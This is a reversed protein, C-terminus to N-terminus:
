TESEEEEETASDLGHVTKEWYHPNTFIQIFGKWGGISMLGWYLPSLLATKVMDFYKRQMAGAVNMYTFTFNGFFLSFAGMYYIPGPFLSSIFDFRFFLWATTLVWYVPNFVVTFINGGVVMQFSFFAKFGIERILKFPHRMHVLWTQIHGKVWRSRQRIWNKVNSNAEEYTTSDVIKTRYGLKYLRIGLDADETMNHPDWAGAEILAFKKFHNSTGGLPIPVNQADLGPLFLDFWMSYESSFWQTLLNQQRNFYNLKAQLCIVNSPSKNFAVVIKKLQDPDPKDEADFIVLLEGKAHILGYNCAKPKTKPLSTPVIVGKIFDPPNFKHFANITEDDDQELLVKVDLKIKPYDLNKIAKLLTPLVAAEKYVPVLITYLPLEDDRLSDIEEQTIPVELDTGVANAVLVFKYVVMLLYIVTFIANVGILFNQLNWFALGVMVLCLIILWIKQQTTLVKAASNEPARNLLASVSQATYDEQFLKELANEFDNETILVPAIELGTKDKVFDHSDTNVPDIVGLYLKNENRSLPLVGWEWQEDPSLLEAAEKSLEMESLDFLPMNVQRSLFSYLQKETVYGRHVLAQGIRSKTSEALNLADNLQERTIQGAMVLLTGLNTRGLIREIAEELEERHVIVPHIDTQLRDQLEVLALDYLPDAFAIKIGSEDRSLPLAGLRRASDYDLQRAITSNVPDTRRTQKIQNGLPDILDQEDITPKLSLAAVNRYDAFVQYVDSIEDNQYRRIVLDFLQDQNIVEDIIQTIDEQQIVDRSVLYDICERILREDKYEPTYKIYKRITSNLATKPVIVPWLQKESMQALKRFAKGQLPDTVAIWLSDQHEFLPLIQHEQMMPQPFRTVLDGDIQFNDLPLHPTEYLISKIQAADNENILGESILMTLYGEVSSDAFSGLRRLQESQVLHSSILFEEAQSVGVEFNVQIKNQLEIKELHNRLVATNMLRPEVPYGTLDQIIDLVGPHIISLGLILVGDVFNLPLISLMKCIEFPIIDFLALLLQDFKPPLDEEHIAITGMFDASIELWTNKLEPREEMLAMFLSIGAIRSLTLTGQLEAETIWGDQQLKEAIREELIPKAFLKKDTHSRKVETLVRLPIIIFSTKCPWGATIKSIQDADSLDSIGIYLTKNSWWLPVYTQVERRLAPDIDLFEHITNIPSPQIAARNPLYYRLSILQSWQSETIRGRALWESCEMQTIEIDSIEVKPSSVDQIGLISILQQIPIQPPKPETQHYLRSQLRNVQAFSVQFIKVPHRVAHRIVDLDQNSPSHDSAVWLTEGHMALPVIHFEDALTEPVIRRLYEPPCYGLVSNNQLSTELRM